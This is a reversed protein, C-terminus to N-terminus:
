IELSKPRNEIDDNERSVSLIVSLKTKTALELSVLIKNCVKLRTATPIYYLLYIPLLLRLLLINENIKRQIIRIFRYSIEKKVIKYHYLQIDTKREIM